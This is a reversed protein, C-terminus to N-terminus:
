VDGNREGKDKKKWCRREERRCRDPRKRVESM